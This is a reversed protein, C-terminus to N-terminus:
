KSCVKSAESQRGNARVLRVDVCTRGVVARVSVSTQAVSKFSQPKSPDLVSYLYSDGAAPNPNKWKVLFGKGQQSITLGSVGPVEDALADVPPASGTATTRSTGPDDRALVVYAGVGVAAILAAAAVGLWGSVRRDRSVTVAPEAVPSPALVRQTDQEVLEPTALRPLSREAATAVGVGNEILPNRDQTAGTPANSEVQRSVRDATPEMRAATAGPLVRGGSPDIPTYGSVLTGSRDPGDDEGVEEDSLVELPTPRIHMDNQVANLARAFDAASHFRQGPDKSMAITLVRELAESSTAARTPPLAATLVRRSLSNNDNPGAPLVFPSRGVIMTWVTAALSYVDSAPTMPADGSIQEPPAWQTSFADPGARESLSGSIGFDTLAPRGGATFLINAPKIDRHLIGMRHATEVAGAIAVGIELARDVPYPRRRIEASVDGRTCFEMILYPSGNAAVGADHITVISSHASLKAMAQAEAEFTAQKGGIDRLLVKVAVDRGHKRYIFVDAFGGSKLFRVFEYGEIVPPASQARPSV